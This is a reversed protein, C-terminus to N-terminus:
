PHVAVRSPCLGDRLARAAVMTRNPCNLKAMISAVARKTAHGSAGIRRAIQKNSYGAVLLAIVESERGTLAPPASESGDAHDSICSFLMQVMHAPMPVQGHQLQGVADALTGADLSSEDLYGDCDLEIARTIDHEQGGVILLVQGGERRHDAVTATIEPDDLDLMDMIVVQPVEASRPLRAGPLQISVPQGLGAVACMRELGFRKFENKLVLIIEVQPTDVTQGTPSMAQQRETPRCRVTARM